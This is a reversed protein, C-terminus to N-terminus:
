INFLLATAALAYVTALRAHGIKVSQKAPPLALGAFAACIATSGLWFPFSLERHWILLVVAVLWVVASVFLIHLDKSILKLVTFVVALFPITFATVWLETGNCHYLLRTNLVAVVALVLFIRWYTRRDKDMPWIWSPPRKACGALFGAAIILIVYSGSLFLFMLVSDFHDEELSTLDRFVVISWPCKEFANMPQVLIRHGIGLYSTELTGNERTEFLDRLRRSRGCADAFNERRNKASTSHFLVEGERDVIAFGYDPPLVPHSVSVLETGIIAVPAKKKLKQSSARSILALYRGSTKTYMPEIWFRDARSPLRWLENGYLVHSFAGSDCVRVDPTVSSRTSFKIEQAGAKDVFSVNDFYPYIPKEDLQKLIEPTWHLDDSPVTLNALTQQDLEDSCTKKESIKSYGVDPHKQVYFEDLKGLMDLALGTEGALNDEIQKALHRLEGDTESGYHSFMLHGLLGGVVVATFVIQLAFVFGTRQKLVEAPGMLRFRLIPYTGVAALLVFFGITVLTNFLPTVREAEFAREHLIGAVIFDMPVSNNMRVPVRVPVTYLKYPEGGLKVDTLRSTALRTSLREDKEPSEHKEKEEDAALTQKGEQEKVKDEHKGPEELLPQLDDIKMGSRQTQYLVRGNADALLLDEFVGRPLSRELSRMLGEYSISWCSHLWQRPANATTNQINGVVFYLKYGSFALKTPPEKAVPQPDCTEAELEPVQGPLENPDWPQHGIYDLTALHSSFEDALAALARLSRENVAAESRRVAFRYYWASVALLFVMALVPYQFTRSFVVTKWRKM